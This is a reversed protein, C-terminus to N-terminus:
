PMSFESHWAVWNINVQTNKLSTTHQQGSSVKGGRKHMGTTTTQLADGGLKHQMGDIKNMTIFQQLHIYKVKDDETTPLGGINQLYVRVLHTKKPQFPNGWAGVLSDADGTSVMPLM